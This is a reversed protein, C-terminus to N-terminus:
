MNIQLSKYRNVNIKISVFQNKILLFERLEDEFNM